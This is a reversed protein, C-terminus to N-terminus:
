ALLLSEPLAVDRRLAQQFARVAAAYASAQAPTLGQGISAFACVKDSFLGDQRGGLWLPSNPSNLNPNTTGRLTLPRGDRYLVVTDLSERVALAFGLGHGLGESYQSTGFSEFYAGQDYARHRMLLTLSGGNLAGMEVRVSTPDSDTAAYYALHHSTPDLHESPVLFSNAYSSTGNWEVGRATHQPDNVFQLRFASDADRPDKLNLAHARATGGTMPYAARLLPWVGSAKLARVLDHLAVPAAGDLLGAATCFALADADFATERGLARQFAGIAETYAAVQAPTLGAGLSAFGCAKQSFYGDQRAGLRVPAAPYKWTTSTPASAQVRGDRYYTATGTPEYSSLGLGLGSPLAPGILSFGAGDAYAHPNDAGYRLLLGFYASGQGYNGQADSCGLEVQVSATSDTTAYYALHASNAGFETGAVFGTDAYQDAGNWQVGNANHLPNNVFQLAFAEPVPRPDKLNLRHAQETGGVMPYVARLLPWVGGVKLARVLAQVALQHAASRLGAAAIFAGADPDLQGAAPLTGLTGDAAVTLRYLLGQPSALVAQPDPLPLGDAPVAGLTGDDAVTLRYLLGEPSALVAGTTGGTGTGGGTGTTGTGTTGTGTTGTGASRAVVDAVLSALFARLGPATTKGLPGNPHVAADLEALLQDQTKPSPSTPSM